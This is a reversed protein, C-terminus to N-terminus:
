EGLIEELKKEIEKLEVKEKKEKPKRSAVAVQPVKPVIKPAKKTLILYRFIEPESKLKKELNALNEPKIQFNLSTLYVQGKNKLPYALKRKGGENIESLSGGEEKILSNIKEQLAKAEEESLDASILYTLEYSPM